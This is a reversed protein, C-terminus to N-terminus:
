YQKEIKADFTLIGDNLFAEAFLVSLIQDYTKFGPFQKRSTKSLLNEAPDYVFPLLPVLNTQMSIISDEIESSPAIRYADSLIHYFNCRNWILENICQFSVTKLIEDVIKRTEKSGPKGNIYAVIASISDFDDTDTHAKFQGVRVGNIKANIVVKQANRTKVKM